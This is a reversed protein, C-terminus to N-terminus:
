QIITSTTAEAEAENGAQVGAESGSNGGINSDGNQLMHLPMTNLTISNEGAQEESEAAQQQPEERQLPLGFFQTIYNVILQQHRPEERHLPPGFFQAIYNVAVWTFFLKLGEFICESLLNLLINLVNPDM